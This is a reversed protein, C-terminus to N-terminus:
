CVRLYCLDSFLCNYTLNIKGTPCVTTFNSLDKAELYKSPATQILLSLDNSINGTVTYVTQTTSPFLRVGFQNVAECFSTVNNVYKGLVSSTKNFVELYAGCKDYYDVCIDQSPYSPVYFESSNTIVSSSNQFKMIEILQTFTVNNLTLVSAVTVNVPRLMTSACVVKRTAFNCDKSMWVDLADFEKRIDAEVSRQFSFNHLARNRPIFINDIIGSCSGFERYLYPESFGFNFM